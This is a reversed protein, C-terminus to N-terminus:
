QPMYGSDWFYQDNYYSCYNSELTRYADDINRFWIKNGYGDILYPADNYRYERAEKACAFGNQFSSIERFQPVFIIEGKKSKIGFLNRGEEEGDEKILESYSILVKQNRFTQKVESFGGQLNPILVQNSRNILKHGKEDTAIFLTHFRGDQDPVLEISKYIIPIIIKANEDILGVKDDKYINNTQAGVYFYIGSYILPLIEKGRRDILGVQKDYEKTVVAFRYNQFLDTGSLVAPYIIKRKENMIGVKGDKRFSIMGSNTIESSRNLKIPEFNKNFYLVSDNKKGAYFTPIKYYRNTVGVDIYISDIVLKGKSNILGAGSTNGIRYYDDSVKYISNATALIEGKTSILANKKGQYMVLADMDKGGSENNDYDSLNYNANFAVDNFPLGTQQNIQYLGGKQEAFLFNKHIKVNDYIFDTLKSGDRTAFAWKKGDQVAIINKLTRFNDFEPKLIEWGERDLLGHKNNKVVQIQELPNQFPNHKQYDFYFYLDDYDNKTILVGKLNILGAIRTNRLAGSNRDKRPAEYVAKCIGDFFDSLFLYKTEIVENGATDIYGWGKYLKYVKAYKVEPNKQVVFFEGLLDYKKADALRQLVAAPTEAIKVNQSQSFFTCQLFFCFIIM